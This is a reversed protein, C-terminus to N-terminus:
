GRVDLTSNAEEEILGDIILIELTFVGSERYQVNSITVTLTGNGNNLKLYGNIRSRSFPSNNNRNYIMIYDSNNSRLGAYLLSHMKGTKNYYILYFIRGNPIGHLNWKLSATSNVEVIKLEEDRNSIIGSDTYCFSFLIVFITKRWPM